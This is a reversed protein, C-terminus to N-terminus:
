DVSLLVNYLVNRRARFETFFESPATREETKRPMCEVPRSQRERRGHCINNTRGDLIFERTFIM